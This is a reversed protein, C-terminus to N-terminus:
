KEVRYDPADNLALISTKALLRSYVRPFADDIDSKDHNSTLLTMRYEAERECVIDELMDIDAETRWSFEDIILYPITLYEMFIAEYAQQGGDGQSKAGKFERLLQSCRLFRTPHGQKIAEMGSAHALHSKGNGRGGYLLVLTVTPNVIISKAAELVSETGTISTFTSFTQKQAVRPIGSYKLRSAEADHLRIGCGCEVQKWTSESDSGTGSIGKM